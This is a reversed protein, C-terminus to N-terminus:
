SNSPPSVAPSETQQVVKAAEALRDQWKRIIPVFSPELNDALAVNRAKLDMGFTVTSWTFKKEQRVVNIVDSFFRTMRPALKKGLTSVMISTGGTVEDTEREQHALLVMPCYVDTTIKTIFRDLNDMAMGWDSMSKVPKSGTVLNMALINVGSLSDIVLARDPGWHDAAGYSQGTRDCTFNSLTRLMDLFGAYKLKNIDEMGSLTKLSLTNIKNASDIMDSWDPSAPALYHWHLKSPPIDALVEMGPETFLVFVELGADVLTRISHTKGTGTAGVLLIKPGPIYKINPSPDTM